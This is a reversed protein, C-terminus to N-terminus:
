RERWYLGRRRVRDILLAAAIPTLVVNPPIDVVLVTTFLVEFPAYGMLAIWGGVCFACVLTGVASWFVVQKWNKPDKVFYGPIFGMFFNGWFGGVGGVGLWGALVDSIFTNGIGAALGGVWPGFLIGWLPAIFAAPRLTIWGIAIGMTAFCGLGYIAAGVITLAVDITSFRVRRKKESMDVDSPYVYSTM